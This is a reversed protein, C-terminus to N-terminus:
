ANWQADDVRKCKRCFNVSKVQVYENCGLGYYVICYHVIM